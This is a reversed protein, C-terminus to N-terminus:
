VTSLKSICWIVHIYYKVKDCVIIIESKYKYMKINWWFYVFTVTLTELCKKYQWGRYPMPCARDGEKQLRRFDTTRLRLWHCEAMDTAVLHRSRRTCRRSRKWKRWVLRFLTITRQLQWIILSSELDEGLMQMQTFPYMTVFSSVIEVAVFRCNSWALLNVIFNKIYIFM